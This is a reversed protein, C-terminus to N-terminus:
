SVTKDALRLLGTLARRNLPNLSISGVYAERAKEPRGLELHAEGALALAEDVVEEASPQTDGRAVLEAVVINRFHALEEETGSLKEFVKTFTPSRGVVRTAPISIFAPHKHFFEVQADSEFANQRTRGYEVVVDIAEDITVEKGENAAACLAQALPTELFGEPLTDTNRATANM